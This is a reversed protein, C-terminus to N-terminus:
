AKSCAAICWLRGAALEVPQEPLRSRDMGRPLPTVILDDSVTRRCLVVRSWCRAPNTRRDVAPFNNPLLSERGADSDLAAKPSLKNLRRLVPRSGHNGAHYRTLAANRSNEAPSVGRSVSSGRETWIFRTARGARLTVTIRPVHRKENIWALM